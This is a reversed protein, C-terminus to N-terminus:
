AVVLQKKSKWTVLNNNFFTCYGITSRRDLPSNAWDADTFGVLRLHGNLGYLIGLSPQRKLYCIICTVVEWHSVRPAELFQSVVSVAYSIDPKTIILYNLKGVPRRHRGPHEFSETEDKLLKKHPDMLVDVLRSGLLCM